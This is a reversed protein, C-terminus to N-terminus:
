STKTQDIPKTLYYIILGNITQSQQENLEFIKTGLITEM